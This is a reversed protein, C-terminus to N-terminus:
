TVFQVIVGTTVTAGWMVVGLIEVSRGRWRAVELTQL